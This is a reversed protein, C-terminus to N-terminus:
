HTSPHNAAYEYALFPSARVFGHSYTTPVYLRTMELGDRRARSSRATQASGRATTLSRM